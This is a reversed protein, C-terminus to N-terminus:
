AANARDTTRPGGGATTQAPTRELEIDKMIVSISTGVKEVVRQLDSTSLGLRRKWARVQGPDSLDIKRVQIRCILRIAFQRINPAACTLVKPSACTLVKPSLHAKKGAYGVSFPKALELALSDSIKSFRSRRGWGECQYATAAGLRRCDWSHGHLAVGSHGVPKDEVPFAIDDCVFSSTRTERREFRCETEGSEIGVIRCASREPPPLM